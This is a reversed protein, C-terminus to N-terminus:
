CSTTTGAQVNSVAERERARRLLTAQAAPMLYGLQGETWPRKRGLSAAIEGMAYTARAVDRHEPLGLREALTAEDFREDPHDILFDLVARHRPNTIALYFARATEIDDPDFAQM